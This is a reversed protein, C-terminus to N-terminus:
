KLFKLFKTFWDMFSQWSDVKDKIESIASTTNKIDPNSNPITDLMRQKQEKELARIMEDPISVM